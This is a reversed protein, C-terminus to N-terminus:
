KKYKRQKPSEPKPTPTYDADADDDADGSKKKKKKSSRKKFSSTQMQAVEEENNVGLNAVVLLLVLLVLAAALFLVGMLTVTINGSEYFTQDYDFESTDTASSPTVVNASVVGYEDVWPDRYAVSELLRGVAYGPVTVFARVKNFKTVNKASVFTATASAGYEIANTFLEAIFESATVNLAFQIKVTDTASFSCTPELYGANCACECSASSVPHGNYCSCSVAAVPSLDLFVM